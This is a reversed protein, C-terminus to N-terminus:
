EVEISTPDSFIEADLRAVANIEHAKAATMGIERLTQVVADQYREEDGLRFGEPTNIYSRWAGSALCIAASEINEPLEPDFNM